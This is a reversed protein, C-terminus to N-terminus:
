KLQSLIDTMGDEGVDDIEPKMTAKYRTHNERGGKDWKDFARWYTEEGKGPAVLDIEEILHSILSPLKDAQKQTRPIM